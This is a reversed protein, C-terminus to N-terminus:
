MSDVSYTHQYHMAKEPGQARGGFCFGPISAFTGTCLLDRGFLKYTPLANGKRAEASRGWFPLWPNICFHGFSIPPHMSATLEIHTPSIRGHIYQGHIYHHHHSTAHEMLPHAPLIIIIGFIFSSPPMTSSSHMPMPLFVGPWIALDQTSRAESAPCSCCLGKFILAASSHCM